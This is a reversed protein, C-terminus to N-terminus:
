RSTVTLDYFGKPIPGLCHNSRKKLKLIIKSYMNPLPSSVQPSEDDYLDDTNLDM